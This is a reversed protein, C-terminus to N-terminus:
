KNEPYSNIPVIKKTKDCKDSELDYTYCKDGHKFVKDQIDGIVPGNFTICNESTCATRFMTALGLGLIISIVNRGIETEFLRRFDM